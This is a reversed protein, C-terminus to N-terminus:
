EEAVVYRAARGLLALFIGALILLLGTRTQNEKKETATDLEIKREMTKVFSDFEQSGNYPVAGLKQLGGTTYTKVDARPAVVASASNYAESKQNPTAKAQASLAMFLGIIALTLGSGACVWHFARGLRIGLSNDSRTKNPWLWASIKM